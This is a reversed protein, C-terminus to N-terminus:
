SNKLVKKAIQQDNKSNRYLGGDSQWGLGEGYFFSGEVITEMLSGFGIAEAKEVLADSEEIFTDEDIEEDSMFSKFQEVLNILETPLELINIKESQATLQVLM